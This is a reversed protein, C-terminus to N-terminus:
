RGRVLLVDRRTARVVKDAVSGLVARGLASRGHTMMAIALAGTREAEAVIAAAASPGQLVRTDIVEAGLPAAEARLFAEAEAVLRATGAADLDLLPSGLVRASAAVPEVVAVLALGAGHIAAFRRAHPLVQRAFAGRALPVIVRPPAAVPLPPDNADAVHHLLVPAPALHVIATAGSGLWLRQIGGRGHSTVAILDAGLEIAVEAVSVGVDGVRVHTATRWEGLEAAVRALEEQAEAIREEPTAQQVSVGIWPDAPVGPAVVHLLHITTRAPDACARVAPLVATAFTSGDLPVLIDHYM